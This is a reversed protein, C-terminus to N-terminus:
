QSDSGKNDYLRGIVRSSLPNAIDEDIANYIYEDRKSRKYEAKEVNELGQQQAKDIIKSYELECLAKGHQILSHRYIAFATIIGVSLLGLGLLRYPTPILKWLKFM